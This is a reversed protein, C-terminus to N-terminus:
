RDERILTQEIAQEEPTLELGVATKLLAATAKIHTTAKSIRGQVMARGEWVDTSTRKWDIGSLGELRKTWDRQSVVEAGMIGLAHLTIGHAHIYERRLESSHVKRESAYTWDPFHRIVEQWFEQALMTDDESVVDRRNKRLLAKTGHYIGSLAFLKFSKLPISSAEVETLVSFVKIDKILSRTLQALPSRLDYMIGLGKSPRVALQNLDAFMQQSRKLGGDAFLVVSITEDGLEPHEKLAAEIGARRHQGDNIIFRSSMPIEVFGVSPEDSSARFAIKGDVSATISSFVYSKPNDIIYRAISPIRARNLPRQARFEAPLEDEDFLFIRPILRLPCMAAYFVRGAQRGKIAPFTYAYPDRM